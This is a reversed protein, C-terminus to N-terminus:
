TEEELLDKGATQFTALDGPCAPTAPAQATPAVGRLRLRCSQQQWAPNIDWWWPNRDLVM